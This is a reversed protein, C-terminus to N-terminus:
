NKEITKEYTENQLSELIKKSLNSSYNFILWWIMNFKNKPFSENQFKNKEIKIETSQNKEILDENQM